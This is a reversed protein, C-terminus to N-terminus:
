RQEGAAILRVAFRHLRTLGERLTAEDTAYSIRVFGPAGFAEGPVTAVGEEALLRRCLEASSAVGARRCLASVDPFAYFAGSPAQVAVGPIRELEALVLRRRTAYVERMAEPSREGEALAALAAHQAISPAQTTDHGQVTLLAAAIPRSAIAYGARWGTMAWTKSFSGVVILREGLQERFSLLSVSEADDYVFLEYTEDSILWLDHRLVVEVLRELEHRPVVAGSPNNPTNLIVGKTASGLASSLAAARPTFGDDARTPVFRARGGALAVQDPFSVWYPSFIAVEDGPDVLALMAAFLLPKGGPGVIVEDPTVVSGSRRSAREALARRLPEIGAPATYHTQGARIAAIGAEAVAAPTDFDPEGPGFDIVAEGARRRRDAEAKIALTASPSVQALRQALRTM